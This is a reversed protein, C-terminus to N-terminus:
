RRLREVFAAREPTAIGTAVVDLMQCANGALLAAVDLWLGPFVTM